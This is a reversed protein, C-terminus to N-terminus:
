AKQNQEESVLLKNLFSFLRSKPLNGNMYSGTLALKPFQLTRVRM